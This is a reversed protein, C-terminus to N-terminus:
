TKIAFVVRMNVPRTENGGSHRLIVDQEDDPYAPKAVYSGLNEREIGMFSALSSGEFLRIQYDLVATANGDWFNENSVFHPIPIGQSKHQHSQILDTQISGFRRDADIGRGSDLGRLFMRRLDPVNFTMVSDGAGWVTGITAFLDSYESRLYSKGDCALWGRPLRYMGFMGIFGTPYLNSEEEVPIPTPNLLHFGDGSYVLTYVCGAQIEGGILFSVGLATAKYVPKGDLANLFVTTAGVNRGTAMFRLVIGNKYELFHSPSELRLTSTQQVLDNTVIGELAGGTDSLYERVRQMMFRASTNVRSPHQGESWDIATDSRTNDSARLSWDYITSM